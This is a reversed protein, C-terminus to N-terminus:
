IARLQAEVDVTSIALLRRRPVRWVTGFADILVPHTACALSLVVAEHAIASTGGYSGPLAVTRQLVRDGGRSLITVTTVFM